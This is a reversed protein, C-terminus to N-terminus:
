MTRSPVRDLAIRNNHSVIGDVTLTDINLSVDSELEQNDLSIVVAVNVASRINRITFNPKVKNGVWAFLNIQVETSNAQHPKFECDEITGDAIVVNGVFTCGILKTDLTNGHDGYVMTTTAAESLSMVCNRIMMHLNTETSGTTICAM